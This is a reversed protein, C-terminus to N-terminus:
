KDSDDSHTEHRADDMLEGMDADFDGEGGNAKATEVLEGLDEAMDTASTGSMLKSLVKGAVGEVGGADELEKNALNAQQNRYMHSYADFTIDDMVYCSVPIEIQYLMSFITAVRRMRLTRLKKIEASDSMNEANMIRVDDAIGAIYTPVWAMYKEAVQEDSMDEIEEFFESKFIGEGSEIVNALQKLVFNLEENRQKAFTNFMAAEVVIHTIQQEM